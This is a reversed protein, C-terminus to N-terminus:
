QVVEDTPPATREDAVPLKSPRASCPKEPHASLPTEHDLLPMFLLAVLSLAAVGAGVPSVLAFSTASIIAGFAASGIAAGLYLASNNLALLL